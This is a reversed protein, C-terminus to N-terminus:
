ASRNTLKKITLKLDGIAGLAKALQNEHSETARRLADVETKLSALLNSEEQTV